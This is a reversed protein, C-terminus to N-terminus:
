HLVSGTVYGALAGVIAAGITASVVIFKRTRTWGVQKSLSDNLFRLEEIDIELSHIRIDLVRENSIAANHLRELEKISWAELLAIKTTAELLWLSNLRTIESQLWANAEANYVVGSFPARQNRNVPSILAGGPPESLGPENLTYTPVDPIEYTEMPQAAVASTLGLLWILMLALFFFSRYKFTTELKM